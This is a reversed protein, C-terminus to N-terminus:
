HDVKGHAVEFGDEIGVFVEEGRGEDGGRGRAEGGHGGGTRGRGWAGGGGGGGESINCAGDCIDFLGPPARRRTEGGRGGTAGGRREGM